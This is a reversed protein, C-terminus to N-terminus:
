PAGRRAAIQEAATLAECQRDHLRDGFPVGDYSTGYRRRKGKRFIAYVRFRGAVWDPGARRWSLGAAPEPETVDGGDLGAHQPV